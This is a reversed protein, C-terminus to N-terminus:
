LPTIEAECTYSDERFTFVFRARPFCIDSDGVPITWKDSSGSNIDSDISMANTAAGTQNDILQVGVVHIAESSFNRVGFIMEGGAKVVGNVIEFQGGHFRASVGEASDLVVLVSCTASVNGATATITTSGTGLAKVVGNEVTAINTDMSSWKVTKETADDPLVTATLSATNGVFM